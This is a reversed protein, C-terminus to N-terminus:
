PVSQGFNNVLSIVDFVNVANNLDFDAEENWNPAGPVSGFANVIAIADFVDVDGDNDVDGALTGVVYLYAEFAGGGQDRAGAVGAGGSPWATASIASIVLGKTEGGLAIAKALIRDLNVGYWGGVFDDVYPVLLGDIMRPEPVGAMDDTCDVEDLTDSNVLLADSHRIIYEFAWMEDDNSTDPGNIVGSFGGYGDGDHDFPPNLLANDARVEQGPNASDLTSVKYWEANPGPDGLAAWGDIVGDPPDSWDVTPPGMRWAVPANEGGELHPTDDPVGDLNWDGNWVGCCGGFYTGTVGRDNFLGTNAVRFALITGPEQINTGPASLSNCFGADDNHLYFTVSVMKKGTLWDRLLQGDPNDPQSRTPVGDPGDGEIDFAWYPFHQDWRHLRFNGEGRIAYGEPPYVWQQTAEDWSGDYTNQSGDASPPFFEEYLAFAAGAWAVTALLTVSLIWRNRVM